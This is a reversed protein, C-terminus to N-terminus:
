QTEQILNHVTKILIKTNRTELTDTVFDDMDLRKKITSGGKMKAKIDLFCEIRELEITITKGEKDEKVFEMKHDDDGIQIKDGTWGFRLMCNYILVALINDKQSVVGDPHIDWFGSVVPDVKVPTVKLGPTKGIPDLHPITLFNVPAEPFNFPVFVHGPMTDETVVAKVNIEGMRSKVTVRDGDKVMQIAADEPNIEIFNEPAMKMLTPCRGTMTMGHYHQSIRGTIMIHDHYEDVKERPPTYEIPFFKGFGDTTFFGKDYLYKKGNPYDKNCPWQVGENGVKEYTIGEYQPVVETIEKFIDEATEYPFLDGMGMADALECIIKWDPKAVGPPNVAKNIRQIRRETNTFTGEKEAWSAAPLLVNAYRTTDTPFIDMVALFELQELGTRTEELAPHSMAPNEGMIVLARTKEPISEMMEVSTIGAKFPLDVVGWNDCLAKTNEHDIVKYGPHCDPLAGVDGSGQVNNQGRLPNVGTGPKGFNGTLMALNSLNVINEVGTVHQTIGMTYYIAGAKAKGYMRAAEIIDDKELGTIEAAYEPTFRRIIKTLYEFGRTRKRIFDIDELGEELIVRMISNILATDTGPKLQLHIDAKKAISTRRPDVVIIKTGNKKRAQIMRTGVLPHSSLTNSGFIIICDSKDICDISNTMVGSGLNQALAAGTTSHCLRACSDINNTGIVAAAFKNLLYNEETTCRSSTLFSIANPGYVKKIRQLESAMYELAKDWTTDKFFNGNGRIQPQTLREPHHVFEHVTKGKICMFGDSVPHGKVGTAKVIKGKEIELKMACGCGCYPCVTQVSENDPDTGSGRVDDNKRDTNKSM